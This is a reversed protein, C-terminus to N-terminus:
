REQEMLICTSAQATWAYQEMRIRIIDEQQLAESLRSLVGNKSWRNMRTYVTHWNGYSKPSAKWKRGNEEVYLIANILQLNSM